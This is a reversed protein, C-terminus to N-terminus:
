RTGKPRRVEALYKKAAAARAKVQAASPPKEFSAILDKAAQGTIPASRQHPWSQQKSKGLAIRAEARECTRIDVRDDAALARQCIGCTVARRTRVVYGSKRGCYTSGGPAFHAKGEM